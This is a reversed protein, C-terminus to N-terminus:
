RTRRFWLVIGGLTLVLGGVLLAAARGSVSFVDLVPPGILIQVSASSGPAVVVRHVGPETVEFRAVGEFEGSPRSITESVGTPQASVAVNSGNPGTVEVLEADAFTDAYVTWTGVTLDREVPPQAPEDTFLPLAEQVATTCGWAAMVM